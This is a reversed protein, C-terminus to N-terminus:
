SQLLGSYGAERGSCMGQLFNGGEWWLWQIYKDPHKTSFTFIKAKDTERVLFKGVSERPARMMGVLSDCPLYHFYSFLFTLTQQVYLNIPVTIGVLCASSPPFISVRVKLHWPHNIHSVAGSM